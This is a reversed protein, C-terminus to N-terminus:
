IYSPGELVVEVTADKRTALSPHSGVASAGFEGFVFIILPTRSSTNMRGSACVRPVRSVGHKWKGDPFWPLNAQVACTQSKPYNPTEPGELYWQSAAVPIGPSPM